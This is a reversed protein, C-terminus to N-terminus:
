LARLAILAKGRVANAQRGRVTLALRSELEHRAWAFRLGREVQHM